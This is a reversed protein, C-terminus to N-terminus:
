LWDPKHRKYPRCGIELLKANIYERNSAILANDEAINAQALGIRDLSAGPYLMQQCWYRKDSNLQDIQQM